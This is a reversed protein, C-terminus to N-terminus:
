TSAMLSLKVLTSYIAVQVSGTSKSVVGTRHREIRGVSVVQRLSSEVEEDGRSGLNTIDHARVALIAAHLFVLDNRDCVTGADRLSSVVLEEERRASLASM